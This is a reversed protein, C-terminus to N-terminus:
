WGRLSIETLGCDAVDERSARSKGVLLQCGSLPFNGSSHCLCLRRAKRLPIHHYGEKMRDEGGLPM